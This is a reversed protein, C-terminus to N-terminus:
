CATGGAADAAISGEKAAATAVFQFMEELEAIAEPADIVLAVERRFDLSLAALAVSGVIAVRGDILMMKGHSRLGAYRKADFVEVSIGAARRTRLLSVLGPDTLKADIVRISHRAQEILATIQKRAREPGIILREPLTEPIPRGERDAAMLDRLGKVVAPDHTIAIADCTKGFCKRTLNLSTVLAPGDDAVLYKAHYKVVSDTYPSIRAGTQELAEWLKKLKKKGKARSTVLVEVDVGRSVARSLESFVDKDNARFLSLGIRSRAERIVGTIADRREDPSTVIHDPPCTRTQDSMRAQRAGM